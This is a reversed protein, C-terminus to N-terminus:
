YLLHVALTVVSEPICFEKLIQCFVGNHFLSSTQLTIFITHHETSSRLRIHKPNLSASCNNTQILSGGGRYGELIHFGVKRVKERCVHHDLRRPWSFLTQEVAMCCYLGAIYLTDM